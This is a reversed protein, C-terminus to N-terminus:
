SELRRFIPATHGQAAGGDRVSLLEPARFSPTNTLKMTANAMVVVVKRKVTLRNFPRDKM